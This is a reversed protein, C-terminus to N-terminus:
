RPCPTGQQSIHPEKDHYPTGQSPQLTKWWLMPKGMLSMPHGSPHPRRARLGRRPHLHQHAGCPAGVHLLLADVAEVHLVRHGGVEHGEHGPVELRCVDPRPLAVAAQKRCCSSGRPAWAKPFDRWPGPMPGADTAAGRPIGCHPSWGQGGGKRAEVLPWGQWAGRVGGVGLGSAPARPRRLARRM